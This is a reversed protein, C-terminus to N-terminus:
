KKIKLIYAVKMATIPGIRAEYWKGFVLSFFLKIALFIRRANKKKPAKLEHNPDYVVHYNKYDQYGKENFKEAFGDTITFGQQNLFNSCEAYTGFPKVILNKM